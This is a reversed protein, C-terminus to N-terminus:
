PGCGSQIWLLCASLFDSELSFILGLAQPQNQQDIESKLLERAQQKYTEKYDGPFAQHQRPGRVIILCSTSGYEVNGIYGRWLRFLWFSHNSRNVM